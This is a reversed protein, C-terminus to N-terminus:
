ELAISNRYCESNGNQSSSLGKNDRSLQESKQLSAAKDDADDSNARNDPGNEINVNDKEYCERRNRFGRVLAAICIEFLQAITFFSFGIFLDVTGGFEAIFSSTDYVKEQSHKDVKLEKYFIHIRAMNERTYAFNPKEKGNHSEYKIFHNFYEETPPFVTTDLEINWSNYSCPEPCPQMKFIGNKIENSLLGNCQNQEVYTCIYDTYNSHFVPPSVRSKDTDSNVPDTSRRHKDSNHETKNYSSKVVEVAEDLVVFRKENHMREAFYWPICHCHDIMAEIQQREQCEGVSEFRKGYKSYKSLNNKCTGYPKGLRTVTHATLKIYTETGPAILYGGRNLM